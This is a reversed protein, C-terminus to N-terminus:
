PRQFGYNRWIAYDLLDVKGDNNFDAHRTSAEGLYEDKWINFDLINVSGDQNADGLLPATTPATSPTSSPALTITPPQETPITTPTPKSPPVTPQPTPTSTPQPAQTSTPQMSPEPTIDTTPTASPTATGPTTTSIAIIQITAPAATAPVDTAASGSASFTLLKTNNGFGILTSETAEITTFTVSGIKTAAQIVKAPDTITAEATISGTSYVPASIQSFLDTNLTLANEGATLKTADYTIALTIAGITNSAPDVMIDFTVTQGVTPSSTAPSLTITTAESARQRVDKQKQTIYVTLPVAIVLLVIAILSLTKPPLYYILINYLNRMFNGM